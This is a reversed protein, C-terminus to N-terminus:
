RGTVGFVAALIDISQKAPLVIRPRAQRLERAFPHYDQPKASAGKRFARTNDLMALVQATHDWAESRRAHTM